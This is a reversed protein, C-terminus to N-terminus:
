VFRGYVVVGWLTIMDCNSRFGRPPLSPLLFRLSRYVAAPPRIAVRPPPLSAAIPNELKSSVHATSSPIPLSALAEEIRM